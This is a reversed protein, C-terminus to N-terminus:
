LRDHVVEASKKQRMKKGDTKVIYGAAVMSRLVQDDYLVRQDEEDFVLKGSPLYIQQRM